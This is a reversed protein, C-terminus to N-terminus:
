STVGYDSWFAQEIPSLGECAELLIDPQFDPPNTHKQEASLEWCLKQSQTDWVQVTHPYDTAITLLWHGDNSVLMYDLDRENPITQHMKLDLSRVEIGHTKRVAFFNGNPSFCFKGLPEEYPLERLSGDGLRLYNRAGLFISAVWGDPRFALANYITAQPHFEEPEADPAWINWSLIRDGYGISLLQGSDPDPNVTLTKVRGSHGRQYEGAQVKLSFPEDVLDQKVRIDGNELGVAVYEDDCSALSTAAAPITMLWEPDNEEGLWWRYVQRHAVIGLMTANGFSLKSIALPAGAGDLIRTFRYLTFGDEQRQWCCIRGEADGVAIALGSPSMAAVLQGHLHVPLVCDVFRCHRVRFGNLSISWLDANRITVGALRLETFPLALVVAINLLNGALYGEKLGPDELALAQRLFENIRGVRHLKSWTDRTQDADRLRSDLPSLLWREQWQRYWLPAQPVTLPYLNIQDLEGQGFARALDEMVHKAVFHRIWDSRLVPHHQDDFTILWRNRLCSLVVSADMPLRQDHAYWATANQRIKIYPYLLLWGLLRNEKPTLQQLYNEWLADTGHPEAFIDNFFDRLRFGANNLKDAVAALIGPNHGCFRILHGLAEPPYDHHALVKQRFLTIATQEDLPALRHRCLNIQTDNLCRPLMRGILIVCGQLDERDLISSLWDEYGQSEPQFRGDLAERDHLGDTNNLQLFFRHHRLLRTLGAQASTLGAPPTEGLDDLVQQYLVEVTPVNAAEYPLVRVFDGNGDGNDQLHQCLLRVLYTKGIRPPGYVCIVRKAQVRVADLLVQLDGDRGHLRTNALETTREYWDRILQNCTNKQVRRGILRTLEQFLDSGADRLANNTYSSETAMRQYTMRRRNQLCFTLVTRQAGTLERYNGSRLGEAVASVIAEISM